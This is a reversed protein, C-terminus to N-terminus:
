MIINTTNYEYNIKKISFLSIIGNIEDLIVSEMRISNITPNLIKSSKGYGLIVPCFKGSDRSKVKKLLPFNVVSFSMHM